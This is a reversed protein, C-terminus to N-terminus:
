DDGKQKLHPNQVEQFTRIVRLVNFEVVDEIPCCGVSPVAVDHRRVLPPCVMVLADLLVESQIVIIRSVLRFLHATASVTSLSITAPHQICHLRDESSVLLFVVDCSTVVKQVSRSVVSTCM